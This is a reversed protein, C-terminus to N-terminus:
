SNKAYWFDVMDNTSDVARANGAEVYTNGANDSMSAVTPTTGWTSAWAVVILNGSGTAPITCTTAPFAGSGCSTVHVMAIQGWAAAPMLVSAALATLFPKFM